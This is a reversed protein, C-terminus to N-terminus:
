NRKAKRKQSCWLGFDEKTRCNLVDEAVIGGKRAMACGFRIDQFSEKRHADPCIALLVGSEKARALYEWDLDLRKPNSNIEIVTGSEAAAQIVTELDVEYPERELLKRGSPHGLIRTFPNEVARVLRKTMADRSQSFRSHVSAIIFDFKELVEDPYDLSGDQLIDSEIGHFIRFPAFVENLKAIELRQKEIVPIKLGGAYAASQSHDSIGLYSFGAAQAARVLEELTNEGDSYTSHVHIVGKVDTEELLRFPTNREYYIRATEIEGKGERLEPPIWQLQLQHYIEEESAIATANNGKFLGQASLTFGKKQAVGELAKLHSENGTAYLLEFPKNAPVIEVKSIIPMWRRLEGAVLCGPSKELLAEAEIWAQPLRMLERNVLLQEGAVKLKQETKETFGKLERVRGEECARLLDALNEVGLEEKLLRLKKPGLGPLRFLELFEETYKTRLEEHLSYQGTLSLERIAEQLGSGIGRIKGESIAVLLEEVSLTQSSLLRAANEYAKVRFPNEGELELLEATETFIDAISRADM